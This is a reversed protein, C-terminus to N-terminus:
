YDLYGQDDTEYSYAYPQGYSDCEEKDEEDSEDNDSEASDDDDSDSDASDDGDSTRRKRKNFNPFAELVSYALHVVWSDDLLLLDAEDIPQNNVPQVGTCAHATSSCGDPCFAYWAANNLSTHMHM